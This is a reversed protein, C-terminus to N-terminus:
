YPKLEYYKKINDPNHSPFLNDTGAGFISEIILCDFYINLDKM